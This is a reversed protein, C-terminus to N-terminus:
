LAVGPVKFETYYTAVYNMRLRGIPVAGTDLTVDFSTPELPKCLGGLRDHNLIAEVAAALANLDSDVDVGKVVCEVVLDMSRAYAGMLGGTIQEGNTSVLLAPLEGDAVPYVRSVSVTAAVPALAAVAADRIQTRVHSM